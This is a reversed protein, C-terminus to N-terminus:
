PRENIKKAPVGVNISYPETDRTVVANAGIVSGRTLRVGKNVAVNAGLWCDDEIYIPAHIFGQDRIFSNKDYKHDNANITVRPGIICKKGIIIDGGGNIVAFATIVSEEGVEISGERAAVFRCDNEIVVNDRFIIKGNERNRLDINGLISVNNGISINEAKGRIKLKPIGEIYFKKGTKIGFSKLIGKMLLSHLKWYRKGTIFSLFEFMKLGKM